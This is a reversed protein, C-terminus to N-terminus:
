TKKEKARVDTIKSQKINTAKIKKRFLYFIWVTKVRRTYFFVELYKYGLLMPPFYEVITQSVNM